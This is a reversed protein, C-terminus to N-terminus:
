VFLGSFEQPPADPMLVLFVTLLLVFILIVWGAKKMYVKLM